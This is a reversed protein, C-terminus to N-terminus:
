SWPGLNKGKEEPPSDWPNAADSSFSSPPKGSESNINTPEHELEDEDDLEEDYRDIEHSVVRGNQFYVTISEAPSDIDDSEEYYFSLAFDTELQDGNVSDLEFRSDIQPVAKRAENELSSLQRIIDPIREMFQPYPKGDVDMAYFHVGKGGNDVLGHWGSNAGMRTFDGYPTNINRVRDAQKAKWWNLLQGFM